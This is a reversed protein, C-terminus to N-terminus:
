KKTSKASPKTNLAVLQDVTKETILRNAVERQVEPEDFRKAMDPNNAYQSKYVNVHEALEDASAEIKLEKSLEALVLGAKIRSAAAEEAENKVWADRDAFGRSELYQDFTMGQYALNQTLDQEISRIQDDLLVQPVSVNSKEVLQGVLDDKLKDSAEREKQATIESRIDNMMDEVSTFPGVKAAFEDTIEPLVIENVKKLTVTFVVPEGALNKQHYEKPFTLPIDFTDGAKHGVVAEEFGPIFSNSGLTLPYDTGTGGDFAVDDKKGVFDIVTEDGDKAARDAEKKESMGSRIREVVDDVDKKAVKGAQKEASLSKYDGLTVKPLVDAEATFELDQGPVYKKIEVEPRELAQLDNEIFSEAVAKSFANELTEQGLANPDVHKAVMELPVHGKRFGPVKVTNALKKLAVQEADALEEKGLQITVIVRTDSLHKVTTKM